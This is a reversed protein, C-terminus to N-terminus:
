STTSCMFLKKMQHEKQESKSPDEEQNRQSLAQPLAAKQHHATMNKSSM